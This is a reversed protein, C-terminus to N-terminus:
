CGANCASLLSNGLFVSFGGYLRCISPSQWERLLHLALVNCQPISFKSFGPRGRTEETRPFREEKLPLFVAQSHMEWAAWLPAQPLPTVAARPHKGPYLEPMNAMMLLPWLEQARPACGIRSVIERNEGPPPPVQSCWLEVTVTLSLRDPETKSGRTGHGLQMATLASLPAEPEKGAGALATIAM